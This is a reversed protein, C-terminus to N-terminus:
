LKVIGLLRAPGGSRAGAHVPSRAPLIREPM